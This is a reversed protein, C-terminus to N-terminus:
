GRGVRAGRRQPKKGRGGMVDMPAAQALVEAEPRAAMWEDALEIVDASVRLAKAFPLVGHVQAADGDVMGENLSLEAARVICQHLECGEEGIDGELGELVTVVDALREPTRLAGISAPEGNPSVDEQEHVLSNLLAHEALTPKRGLREAEQQERWLLYLSM